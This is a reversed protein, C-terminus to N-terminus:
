EGRMISDFVKFNEQKQIFAWVAEAMGDCFNAYDEECEEQWDDMKESINQLEKTGRAPSYISFQVVSDSGWFDRDVNGDFELHGVNIADTLWDPLAAYLETFEPIDGWSQCLEADFIANSLNSTEIIKRIEQKEM